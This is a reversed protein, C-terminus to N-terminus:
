IHSKKIKGSSKKLFFLVALCLLLILYFQAIPEATPKTKCCPYVTPLIPWLAYAAVAGLVGQLCKGMFMKRCSLDASETISVIQLLVCCGGLGLLFASISFVTRLPLCTIKLAQFGYTIELLGQIPFASYPIFQEICGIFVSFFLIFICVTITTKGGEFIANKCASLFSETHHQFCVREHMIEKPRFLFGTAASSLLHIAYLLLGAATSQFVGHGVIGIIFSPGANNCFMLAQEAASKSLSGDQHLQSITRAGVPYGGISGLLFASATSGPVHFFREMLPAFFASTQVAAGCRIWLDSLVFFPFLVPLVSGACLRLGDQVAQKATNTNTLLFCALLLLAASKVWFSVSKM